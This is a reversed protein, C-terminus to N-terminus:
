QVGAARVSGANRCCGLDWHRTRREWIKRIPEQQVNGVPPRHTCVTVDGNSQFQLMTLASCLPNNLHAIHIQTLRGLGVPDRFYRIMADFQDATNAINLGEAKLGILREVARVAKETDRPWNDGSRFWDEDDPTNYNQEIPQYFVEVGERTAYRAVEHLNDLNAEMIVTKLRIRYSLGQAERIRILTEISRNTKEFFDAKGRIKSHTEGTGDVSVTIRTSGALALQEIRSQDEWYGHTLVELSFGLSSAYAVLAPTWPRLLAEGGTFVLGVPGLWNRLDSLVNAWGALGPTEEHGKNKWIDCHVCRANCHETLLFMINVPRCRHALRGSALSRLRYNAGEYVRRYITEM